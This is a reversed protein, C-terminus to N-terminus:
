RPKLADLVEDVSVTAFSSAYDAMAYPIILERGHLVAGCSYVVNPVYGERENENPSLLPETLRGIVKSPNELDLLVAGMSYKRMPGVGHTLVLWGAGTEIPSGCNGLQVFEWPFTPKLILEKTYWFHLNDSYMLFINENDQRSLMAYNGGIKRPFLAFGKNRVEPGNLTSLKFRLFDDTELLQPLVVKGDFATYTAYYRLTGDDERFQVFRADEIGNTETPSYPFICRESLNQEPEYCSEYNSKALALVGKAISEWEPHKTRFQRLVRRIADDLQLITFQEDLMAFVQETFGNGLGLEILKRQFLPKEYAPNPVIQPTTVFRTPQDVTIANSADIKGTRFTISSIHGEGTARLSLVFRRTGEPLGSQDPHWVMAPNFLAASELSYENTFYAGILLRREESLTEDTLLHRRVGEFRELFFNKLRQHRGQFERMVQALLASVQADSVSMVRATIKLVREHSAPEFPRFLVRSNNPKLVIGTRKVDM